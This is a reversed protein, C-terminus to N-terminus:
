QPLGKSTQNPFKVIRYLLPITDQNKLSKIYHLIYAPLHRTHLYVCLICVKKIDTTYENKYIYSTM